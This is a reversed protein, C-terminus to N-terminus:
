RSKPQRRPPDGSPHTRVPIMTTAHLELARRAEDRPYVPTHDVAGRQQAEDALL